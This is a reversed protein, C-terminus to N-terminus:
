SHPKGCLKATGFSCNLQSRLSCNLQIQSQRALIPKASSSEGEALSSFSTSIGGRAANGM